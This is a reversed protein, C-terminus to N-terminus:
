VAAPYYEKLIKYLRKTNTIFKDLPPAVKESDLWTPDVKPLGLFDFLKQFVAKGSKQIGDEYSIEHVAHTSAIQDFATRIGIAEKCYYHFDDESIEFPADPNPVTPATKYFSHWRGSRMARQLSAFQAVLDRREVRILVVDKLSRYKTMAAALDEAEGLSGIAVKVGNALIKGKPQQETGGYGMLHPGKLTCPIMTMADLLQEYGHDREWDNVGSVTFISVGKTFFPSVKLEDMSSMVNPHGQLAQHTVTTGSRAMGVILFRVRKEPQM